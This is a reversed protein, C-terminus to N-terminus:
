ESEGDKVTDPKGWPVKEVVGVWREDALRNAYCGIHKCLRLFVLDLLWMSLQWVEYYHLGSVFSTKKSPHVLSNRIFTIASPIDTWKKHHQTNLLKLSQPLGIPIDLSTLLLRLKEAASLGGRKFQKAPVITHKEVCYAWALRELATQALIIGADVGIGTSRENAALYWYLAIKLHGKWLDDSWLNYFEPFVESLLSGHHLDFWSYSGNWPGAAMLPLDWQEFVREGNADLGIPLSLGIWRGLAFSLFQRLCSLLGEAQEISFTSGDEREIEGMHTIVYGGENKLSKFLDDTMDTAAITIRWNAAKFIIRGCRKAGQRPPTGLTLIYDDSGNFDPFNYIHFVVKSISKQGDFMKVLSKRPTFVIEDRGVGASKCFVNISTNKEIFRLEVSNEKILSHGLRHSWFSGDSEDDAPVVFLLCDNPIFQITIKARKEYVEDKHTFQVKTNGLEIPQNPCAQSYISEIIPKNSQFM